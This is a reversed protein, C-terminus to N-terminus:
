SSGWLPPVEGRVNRSSGVMASDESFGCLHTHGASVNPFMARTIIQSQGARVTKASEGLMCLTVNRWVSLRTSPLRAWFCTQSFSFRYGRLQSGFRLVASFFFGNLFIFILVTSYLQKVGREESGGEAMITRTWVTHQDRVKRKKDWFIGIGGTRALLRPVGGEM